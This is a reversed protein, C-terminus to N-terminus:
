VDYMENGPSKHLSGNVNINKETRESRQYFRERNSCKENM